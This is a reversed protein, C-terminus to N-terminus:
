DLVLICDPTGWSGTRYFLLQNHVYYVRGIEVGDVNFWSSCPWVNLEVCVASQYLM